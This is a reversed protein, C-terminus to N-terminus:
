RGYYNLFERKLDYARFDSDNSVSCSVVQATDVYNVKYKDDKGWAYLVDVVNHDGVNESYDVSIYVRKNM